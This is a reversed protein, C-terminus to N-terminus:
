LGAIALPLMHLGVLMLFTRCVVFESESEFESVFTYMGRLAVRYHPIKFGDWGALGLGFWLWLFVFCVCHEYM